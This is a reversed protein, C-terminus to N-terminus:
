PPDDSRRGGGRRAGGVPRLRRRDADKEDVDHEGQAEEHWPRPSPRRRPLLGTPGGARVLRRRGRSVPRCNYPLIFQYLICDASLALVTTFVAKGTVWPEAAWRISPSSRRDIMASSSAGPARRDSCSM